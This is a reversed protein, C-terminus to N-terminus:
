RSNNEKPLQKWVGILIMAFSKMLAQLAGVKFVVGSWKLEVNLNLHHWSTEALEFAQM